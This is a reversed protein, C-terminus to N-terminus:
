GDVLASDEVLALDELESSAGDKLIDLSSKRSRSLGVNGVNSDKKSEEESGASSSDEIDMEILAPNQFHPVLSPEQLSHRKKVALAKSGITNTAVATPHKAPASPHAFPKSMSGPGRRSASSGARGAGTMSNKDANQEKSANAPRAAPRELMSTAGQANNRTTRPAQARPALGAKLYDVSARKDKLTLKSPLAKKPATAETGLRSRPGRASKVPQPDAKRANQSQQVLSSRLKPVGPEIGGAGKSLRSM